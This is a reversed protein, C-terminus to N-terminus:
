ECKGTGAMSSTANASGATKATLAVVVPFLVGSTIAISPSVSDIDLGNVEGLGTCGTRSAWFRPDGAVVGLPELAGDGVARHLELSDDGALNTPGVRATWLRM